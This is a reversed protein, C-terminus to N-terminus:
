ARKLLPAGTPLAGPEFWTKTEGLQLDYKTLANDATCPPKASVSYAYRYPKGKFAPNVRPLEVQSHSSIIM